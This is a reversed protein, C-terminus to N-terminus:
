IFWFFPFISSFEQVLPNTLRCHLEDNVTGVAQMFAGCITSGVFMFGRRSKWVNQKPETGVFGWIYENFTGFENQVTLFVKANQIAAEIKLRNRDIGADALL